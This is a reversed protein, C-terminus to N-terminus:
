YAPTAGATRGYGAGQQCGVGSRELHGAASESVLQDQRGLELHGGGEVEIGVAKIAVAATAAVVVGYRWCCYCYCFYVISVGGMKRRKVNGLKWRLTGGVVECGKKESERPRTEVWRKKEERGDGRGEQEVVAM